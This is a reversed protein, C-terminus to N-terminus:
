RLVEEYLACLARVRAGPSHQEQAIEHGRAALKAALDPNALMSKLAEAM